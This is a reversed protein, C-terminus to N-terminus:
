IEKVGVHPGGPVSTEKEPESYPGESCGGQETDEEGDPKIERSVHVM